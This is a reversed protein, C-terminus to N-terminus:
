LWKERIFYAQTKWIVDDFCFAVLVRTNWCCSMFGCLWILVTRICGVDLNTMFSRIWNSEISLFSRSIIWQKLDGSEKERTQVVSTMFRLRASLWQLTFLYQVKVVANELQSIHTAISHRACVNQWERRVQDIRVSDSVFARPHQISLTAELKYLRKFGSWIIYRSYNRQFSYFMASIQKLHLNKITSSKIIVNYM